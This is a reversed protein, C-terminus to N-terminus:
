SAPFMRKLGAGLSEPAIGFDTYFRMPDTVNDEGLMILQDSTVPFFPLWGLARTAASVLGLPVHVKRVRPRGIAAGILDLLEVFRYTAPGAVEYTQGVSMPTRLARVFGEAVHEVAIPQLRTEGSGLVPVVPARRVLRALMSVLEDGAGYIISPRFITWELASARVVEEAEWKTRHYRARADARTGLASMHVYRKVGAEHAVGLMNATALPHLREFTIGRARHERIIGVLHIVAACGEVAEALGEPKLVDGPVRDISEFGRLEAESGRRVLCRVLFGHHLLARVVAHGVFGTAGTVFIRQM